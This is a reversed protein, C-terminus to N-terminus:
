HLILPLPVRGSPCLPLTKEIQLAHTVRPSPPAHFSPPYIITHSPFPSTHPPPSISTFPFSLEDFIVNCSIYICKIPPHLCQYGRYSPSYGIFICTDFHFDLKYKNCPQLHPWCACGFVRMFNYNPWLNFLKQLPSTNKLIPTPLRNILYCTTQFAEAWYTLPASCHALLTLGIEVIHRHKREMYGNQQHTHPYTIRHHIGHSAFLHRLKQFEGGGDMQISKIKCDFLREVYAQFKPFISSVNYKCTIPYFWTFKSFHDVFIVYYRAGNNSITLSPGWVDSFVLELPFSSKNESLSFPLQHSKGRQCAPCVIPKKNSTTSLNFNSFVHHVIRDVPHGLRAHWDVSTARESLFVRPPTASPPLWHYLGNRSPGQHLIKGFMRDEVFFYSPHFKMSVNNDATFKQVYLLNKTIKPVHL